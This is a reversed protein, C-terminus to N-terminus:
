VTNPGAHDNGQQRPALFPPAARALAAAKSIRRLSFLSKSPTERGGHSALQLARARAGFPRGLGRVVMGEIMM